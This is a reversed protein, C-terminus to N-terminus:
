RDDDEGRDLVDAVDDLGEDLDDADEILADALDGDEPLELDDALILDEVPLNKEASVRSKRGRGPTVM